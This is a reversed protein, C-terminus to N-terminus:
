FKKILCIFKKDSINNELFKISLDHDLTDFFFKIDAEVLYNIRKIAITERMAGIAENYFANRGSDTPFILSNLSM